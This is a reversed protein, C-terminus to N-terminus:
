ELLKDKAANIRAALYDNGGRDPHLKQMLKRHADIIEAQTAGPKLGLLKLAEERTMEFATSGRSTQDRKDRQQARSRRWFQLLPLARLVLPILKQVFPLLLAFVGGLWHLKGTVTLYVLVLALTLILIRILARGQKERPQKSLWFWSGVVILAILFLGVPNMDANRVGKRDDM